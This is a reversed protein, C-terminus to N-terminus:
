ELDVQAFSCRASVVGFVNSGVVDLQAVRSLALRRVRFWTQLSIYVASIDQRLLTTFCLGASYRVKGTFPSGYMVLFLMAMICSQHELRVTLSTSFLCPSNLAIASYGLSLLGTYKSCLSSTVVSLSKTLLLWCLQPLVWSPQKLSIPVWILSKIRIPSYYM